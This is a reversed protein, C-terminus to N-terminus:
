LPRSPGRPSRLSRHRPAFRRRRCRSERGSGSGKSTGRAGMGAGAGCEGRAVYLRDRVSNFVVVNPGRERAYKEYLCVKDFDSGLVIAVRAGGVNARYQLYLDTLEKIEREGVSSDFRALTLDVVIRPLRSPKVALLHSREHTLLEEKGIDGWWAELALGDPGRGYFHPM